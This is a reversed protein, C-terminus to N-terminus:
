PRGQLRRAVFWLEVTGRPSRVALRQEPHRRFYRRLGRRIATRTPEFGERRGRATAAACLLAAYTTKLHRKRARSLRYKSRKETGRKM